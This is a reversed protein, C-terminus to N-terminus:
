GAARASGESALDRSLVVARETWDRQERYVALWREIGRIVVGFENHDIGYVLIVGAHKRDAM